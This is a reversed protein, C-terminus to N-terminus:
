IIQFWHTLVCICFLFFFQNTRWKKIRKSIDAANNWSYLRAVVESLAEEPFPYMQCLSGLKVRHFWLGQALRTFSNAWTFSFWMIYDRCVVEEMKKKTVRDSALIILCYWFSFSPAVRYKAHDVGRGVKWWSCLNM